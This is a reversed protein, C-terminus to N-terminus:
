EMKSYESHATGAAEDLAPRREIAAGFSSSVYRSAEGERKDANNNIRARNGRAASGHLITVFSVLTLCPLSRGAAPPSGARGAPPPP